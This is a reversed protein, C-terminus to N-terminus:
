WKLEGNGEFNKSKFFPKGVKLVSFKLGQYIM